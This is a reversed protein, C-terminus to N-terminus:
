VSATKRRARTGISGRLKSTSQTSWGERWVAYGPAGWTGSGVCRGSRAVRRSTNVWAGDAEAPQDIARSAVRSRSDYPTSSRRIVTLQFWSTALRACKSCATHPRPVAEPPPM